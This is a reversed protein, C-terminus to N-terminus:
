TAVALCDAETLPPGIHRLLRALGVKDLEDDESTRVVTAYQFRRPKCCVYMVGWGGLNAPAWELKRAIVEVRFGAVHSLFRNLSLQGGMAGPGELRYQASAPFDALQTCWPPPGFGLELQLAWMREPNVSYANHSVYPPQTWFPVEKADLGPELVFSAWAQCAPLFQEDLDSRGVGLISPTLRQLLPPPPPTEDLNAIFPQIFRAEPRYQVFFIGFSSLDPPPKGFTAELLEPSFATYSIFLQRLATMRWFSHASAVSFTCYQLSLTELQDALDELLESCDVNVLHLHRINPCPPLQLLEPLRADIGLAVDVCRIGLTMLPRSGYVTVTQEDLCPFFTRPVNDLYLAANPRMGARIEHLVNKVTLYSLSSGSDFIALVRLLPYEPASHVGSHARIYRVFSTCSPWTLRLAPRRYLVEQAPGKWAACVRAYGALDCQADLLDLDHQAFWPPDVWGPCGERFISNLVDAPLKHPSSPIM